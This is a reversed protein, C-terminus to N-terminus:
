NGKPNRNFSGVQAGTMFHQMWSMPDGHFRTIPRGGVHEIVPILMGTQVTGPQRAASSADAYVVDEVTGLTAGDLADFRTEKFRDSHRQFRSLLRKRYALPTEGPIPQLARDGFMAAVSDARAQAAALADRESAPTETTIGKLTAEMAALRAKLDANEQTVAADARVKDAREKDEAADKRAKADCAVADARRRKAKDAATEEDDGDEQWAKRDADEDADCRAKFADDSEGDKRPAFRDKRAADRRGADARKQEEEAADKRAKDAVEMADLRSDMRKFSDMIADLKAEADKRAKDAVAQEEETMGIPEQTTPLTDTRIGDPPRGQDWVGASCVCVHDLLSPNGEILFTEGNLEITKNGDAPKFVVAPSTSMQNETMLRIAEADYIRCIAWVSDDRIFPLMVTGVIRNAFEESNLAPVKEPHNWIVPLGNCRQLFRDTLYIDPSRWVFEDHGSRYSLGTGTIRLSWLSMGGVNTPSPLIGDRVQEALDLENM